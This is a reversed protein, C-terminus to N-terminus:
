SCLFFMYLSMIQVNQTLMFSYIQSSTLDFSSSHLDSGKNPASYPLGSDPLACAQEYRTGISSVGENRSGVYYYIIVGITHFLPVRSRLASRNATTAWEAFGLLDAQTCANKMQQEGPFERLMGTSLPALPPFWNILSGKQYM